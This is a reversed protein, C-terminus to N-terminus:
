VLLNPMPCQANLMPCLSTQLFMALYRNLLFGAIQEHFESWPETKIVKDSDLM